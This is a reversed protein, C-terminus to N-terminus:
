KTKYLQNQRQHTNEQKPKKTQNTETQTKRTQKNKLTNEIYVHFLVIGFM